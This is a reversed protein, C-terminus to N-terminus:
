VQHDWGAKRLIAEVSVGKGGNRRSEDSAEMFAYIELTEQASVPPMGTRFFEAIKEVLALYGEFHGLNMNGDTGFAIGGYDHIGKRTGRFTGLRGDKWKGVVVDSDETTFRTVTDCGTGMVTYLVEVGHIGYWFLDPHHPELTAPSFTDAGLVSGILNENRVAQVNKMYRLSSASFVPINWEAAEKYIKVADQLSAAIPKDIFVCKGSKFIERAQELHLRGDNTELLVVDVKGLLKGISDVIEVGMEQLQRTYEPIRDASSQIETSGHPYASVVRFGKVSSELGKENFIGAFAPAHSTDLGIIGIRIEQLIPKSLMSISFPQAGLAAGALASQRIFKRRSSKLSEIRM